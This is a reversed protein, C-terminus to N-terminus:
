YGEALHLLLQDILGIARLNPEMARMWQRFARPDATPLIVEGIEEFSDGQWAYHAYDDSVRVAIDEDRWCLVACFGTFLGERRSAFTNDTPTEALALALTTARRVYGDVHEIAIDRLVPLPMREPRRRLAWAPFAQEIDARTVMDARMAEWAEKDDGCESDLMETEDEEGLWYQNSAEDLVNSPTFLPYAQWSKEELIDLVTAGLGPVAAELREFGPGVTWHCINRESWRIHVGRVAQAEAADLACAAEDFDDIHDIAVPEIQFLPELCATDGIHRHLWKSLVAACAALPDSAALPFDRRTIVKACALYGALTGAVRQGAAPLITAPIDAALVPQALAALTPAAAM